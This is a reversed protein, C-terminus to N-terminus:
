RLPKQTITHLLIYLGFPKRGVRWLEKKLDVSGYIPHEGPILLPIEMRSIKQMMRKAEEPEDDTAILTEMALRALPDGEDNATQGYLNVPFFSLPLSIFEEAGHTLNLHGYQLAYTVDILFTHKEPRVMLSVRYIIVTHGLPFMNDRAFNTWQLDGIHDCFLGITSDANIDQPVTIRYYWTKMVYQRIDVYGVGEVLRTGPPPDKSAASVIPSDKAKKTEM